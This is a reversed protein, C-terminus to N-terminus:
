SESVEVMHVASKLRELVYNPRGRSLYTSILANEPTLSLDFSLVEVGDVEWRQYKNNGRSKKAMSGTYNLYISNPRMRFANERAVRKGRVAMRFSGLNRVEYVYVTPTGVKTQLDGLLQDVEEWLGERQDINLIGFAVSHGRADLIPLLTERYPVNAETGRFSARIIEGDADKALCIAPKDRDTLRSAILGVFNAYFAGEVQCLTFNSYEEIDATELVRLVLEKQEKQFDEGAPYGGGLILRVADEERGFRFMSNIKPSLKYDIFQRDLTPTGFEFDREGRTVEDILYRIYGSYGHNYTVELFERAQASEIERVDSLLTVGVLSIDTENYFLEPHLSQLVEWAVGAGSQFLMDKSEWSFQNNIIIGSSWVVESPDQPSSSWSPEHHDLSIVINGQDMLDIMMSPEITFDASVILSNTIDNPRLLYGHRRNPNIYTSFPIDEAQLARCWFLGAILGDVDPDFYVVGPLGLSKAKDLLVRVYPIGQLTTPFRNM